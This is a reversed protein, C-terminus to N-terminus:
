VCCNCSFATIYFALSCQLYHSIESLIGHEGKIVWFREEEAAAQFSYTTRRSKKIIWVCQGRLAAECAACRSLASLSPPAVSEEARLHSCERNKIQNALMMNTICFFTGEQHLTNFNYLLFATTQFHWETLHNTIKLIM